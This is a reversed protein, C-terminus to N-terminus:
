RHPYSWGLDAEAVLHFNVSEKLFDVELNNIVEITTPVAILRSVPRTRLEVSGMRTPAVWYPNGSGQSMWSMITRPDKRHRNSMNPTSTSMSTHDTSAPVTSLQLDRKTRRYSLIQVSARRVPVGVQLEGEAVGTLRNL